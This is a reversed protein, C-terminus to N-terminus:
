HCRFQQSYIGEKFIKNGQSRPCWVERAKNGAEGNSATEKTSEEESSCKFVLMTQADTRPRRKERVSTIGLHQDGFSMM